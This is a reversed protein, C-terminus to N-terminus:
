ARLALALREAVGALHLVRNRPAGRALSMLQRAASELHESARGMRRARVATAASRIQAMAARVRGRNVVRDDALQGVLRELGALQNGLAPPVVWLLARSRTADAAVGVIEGFDNIAAARSSGDAPATELTQLGQEMTWVFARPRGTADLHEGVVQGADNVGFAWSFAGGTDLDIMGVGRRWLFAHGAGAATEALGAVDGYENIALAQSYVGGLAGLEVPTGDPQWLVARPRGDEGTRWGVVQRRDNIAAAFSAQGSTGLDRSAGSVEWLTAHTEGATVARWGVAQGLNNIDNALGPGLEEVVEGRQRFARGSEGVIASQDNIGLGLSPVDPPGLVTMPGNPRTFLFARYTGDATQSTGAITGSANIAAAWASDGGLTGLDVPATSQAAAMAPLTLLMAGLELLPTRNFGKM